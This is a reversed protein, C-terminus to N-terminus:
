DIGARRLALAHTIIEDVSGGLTFADVHRDTVLPLLPLYPKVGEAYPADGVAAVADDPLTLGQANATALKLSRRGLLRAVSPRLTDRADRGETTVCANLRAILKVQQPERGVKYAGQSKPELAGVEEVSGCAEMIVADALAGAMRKGLPGNTAVYVPIEARPPQFSLRGNYFQVIEGHFYIQEGRLLARILEIAERM